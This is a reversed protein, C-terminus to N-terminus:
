NSRPPLNELDVNGGSLIIVVRKGEFLDKNALLAALPVASSPEVIMKTREWILYMAEAIEQDDALLIDSVNNKIIPWNREGLSTLLGDAITQPNVSPVLGGGKMSQWADNAGTPEAAFVLTEPSYHNRSLCTGALLGGGGVPCMIIDVLEVQEFAEKAATAQGSIIDYNDYPHIFTAGSEEVVKELNSERAALTPECEIVTAGYGEVARRKVAPANSPMVIYAKSKATKAALSLAQAHNGSSHTAVGQLLEGESLQLVANAAGRMKFAGVKQFNECKFFLECGALENLAQCTVIPTVHTVGRLREAAQEISQKDPLTETLALDKDTELTRKQLLLYV